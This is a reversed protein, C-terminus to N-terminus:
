KYGKRNLYTKSELIINKVINQYCEKLNQDNKLASEHDFQHVLHQERAGDTLPLQGTQKLKWIQEVLDKRAVMFDFLDRHLDEVQKRLNQIQDSEKKSSSM